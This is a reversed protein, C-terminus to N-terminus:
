DFIILHYDAYLGTMCGRPSIGAKTFLLGNRHKSIGGRHASISVSGFGGQLAVAQLLTSFEPFIGSFSM